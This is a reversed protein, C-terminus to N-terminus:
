ALKLKLNTHNKLHSEFYAKDIFLAIYRNTYGEEVVEHHPFGPYFARMGSKARYKENGTEFIFMYSLHTHKPIVAYECYKLIPIFISIDPHLYYETNETLSTLQEGSFKGVLRNIIEIEALSLINVSKQSYM